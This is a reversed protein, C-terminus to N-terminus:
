ALRNLAAAVDGPHSIMADHDSDLDIVEPAGINAIMLQAMDPTVAADRSCRIYTTPVDTYGSVTALFLGNVEPVCKAHVEAFAAKDLDGCFMQHATEEDLLPQVGSPDGIEPGGGDPFFIDFLTQGPKPALAALYVLRAIRSAARNATETITLGGLSHGVLLFSGFGARDAEELVADVCSDITVTGSAPRSGRGPLDVAVSPKDLLPAVQEWCWAGHYGGHVLVIGDM